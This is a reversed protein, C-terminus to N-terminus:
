ESIPLQVFQMTRKSLFLSLNEPIRATRKQKREDQPALFQIGVKGNSFLTVVEALLGETTKVIDGRKFIKAIEKPKPLEQNKIIKRNGILLREGNKTVCIADYPSFPESSYGIIKRKNTVGGKGYRKQYLKIRVRRRISRSKRNVKGENGEKEVVMEKRIRQIDRDGPNEFFLKRQHRARLRVLYFSEMLLCKEGKSGIAVADNLHSKSLGIKKRCQGTRWGNVLFIPLGIAKLRRGLENRGHMVRAAGTVSSFKDPDLSIVFREEQIKLSCKHCLTLLDGHRSKKDLQYIYATNENVNRCCLCCRESDRQIVRRRKKESLQYALRHKNEQLYPPLLRPANKRNTKQKELSLALPEWRIESIPIINRIKNLLRMKAEIDALVSPPLKQQKFRKKQRRQWRRKRRAKRLRRRQSLLATIEQGRCRMQAWFVVRQHSKNNQIVAVGVTEGDDFALSAPQLIPEKIQYTLRLTFPSRCAVKAKGNKLLWKAKAPRTPMLPKGDQNLVYVTHMSRKSMSKRWLLSYRLQPYRGINIDQVTGRMTASM